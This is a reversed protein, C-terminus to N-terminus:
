RFHIFRLGSSSIKMETYNGWGNYYYNYQSIYITGDSNVAEVWAVHGYPGATSVAVSHVTPTYDWPIGYDDARDTWQKANANSSWVPMRLGAQHVKWAAYSTCERNPFGWSDVISDQPANAWVGPYGGHGPDGASPVGGLRSNAARQQALLQSVQANKAGIVSQFAAEQGQTEALLAAQESEKQALLDRQATQDALVQKVATQQKVLEAKIKKITTIASLVRGRITSRYEQKDVFDGISKSSALVEVSTTKNDVYLQTLTKSLLQQQRELKAQNDAIQQTLQDLKAQSLDVQAQIAAKQASLQAVAIQLTQAQAALQAAQAQYGSIENQIARIQEDFRDASAPLPALVMVVAMIGVLVKTLSHGIVTKFSASHKKM